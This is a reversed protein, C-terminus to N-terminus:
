KRLIMKRTAVGDKSELRVFYTGSPLDEATFLVQHRGPEVTANVLWEVLHGSIDWVSLRVHMSESLEFFVQTSHVFPNPSNGILNFSTPAEPEGLGVKLTNTVLRSGDEFDQTFRYYFVFSQDIDADLFSYSRDFGALEDEHAAAVILFIAVFNSGDTSRELTVTQTERSALRWNIEVAGSKVEARAGHVPQHLALDSLALLAGNGEVSPPLPSEFDLLIIPRDSLGRGPLRMELRISESDRPAPWIRLEDFLGSVKSETSNVRSGISVPYSKSSPGDAMYVTDDPKGDIYLSAANAAVDRVYAVHHWTGDAVPRSSLVSFHRGAQGSYCRLNGGADVVFEFPYSTAENGDWTSLIVVDRDITQLWFEVTFSGSASFVTGPANPASRLRGASALSLAHGPTVPRAEVPVTTRVVEGVEELQLVKKVPVLNGAQVGIEANGSDVGPVATVVLRLPTSLRFRAEAIWAKGEPRLRMTSRRMRADDVHDVGLLEWGDPLQLRVADFTLGAEWEVFLNVPHGPRAYKPSWASGAQALAVHSALGAM